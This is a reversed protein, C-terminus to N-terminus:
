KQPIGKPTCTLTDRIYKVHLSLVRLFLEREMVLQIYIKIAKETFLFFLLICLIVRQIKIEMAPDCRQRSWLM